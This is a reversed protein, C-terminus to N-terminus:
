SAPENGRSSENSGRGSSFDKWFRQIKGGAAAAAHFAAAGLAVWDASAKSLVETAANALGAFTEPSHRISSASLSITDKMARRFAERDALAERMNRLAVLPFAAADAHAYSHFAADATSCASLRAPTRVADQGDGHTEEVDTLVFVRSDAAADSAAAADASAAATAVATKTAATAAKMEEEESTM